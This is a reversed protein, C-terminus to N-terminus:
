QQPPMPHGMMGGMDMKQYGSPIEFLSAPQSGEQLNRLEMGGGDASTVKILYRSRADIWAQSKKGDASTGEYEIASRGNVTDSGVKRCTGQKQQTKLQEALKEWDGCANDIDAPRWFAFAHRPMRDGVEMYMHQAPMLMYSKQAAMDLIMVGGGRADHAEIRIKDGSVFIKTPGSGHHAPNLDVMDASFDQALCLGGAIAIFVSVFLSFQLKRRM